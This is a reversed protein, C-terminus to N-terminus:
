DDEDLEELAAAATSSSSDLMGDFINSPPPAGNLGGMIGKLLEDQDMNQYLNAAAMMAQRWADKDNLLDEMGPMGAMMNKLMPNTLIMQRSQELKEPDSMFEKFIPSQMMSSMASMAEQMSAEGGAGGGMSKLMEDVQSSDIGSKALYDKMMADMNNSASASADNTSTSAAAVTSTTSSSSSKKKKKGSSSSTTAPIMSLSAGDTVGANKLISSPELRKGEFLVSQQEIDTLGTAATMASQLDRVTQVDQPIEYKKGRLTVQLGTVAAHSITALSVILLLTVIVWRSNGTIRM